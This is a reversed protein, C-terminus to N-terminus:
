HSFGAKLGLGRKEFRDSPAGSVQDDLFRLFPWRIEDHHTGV